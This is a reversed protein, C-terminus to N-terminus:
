RVDPVETLLSRLAEPRFPKPLVGAIALGRAAAERETAALMLPDAGSAIIIRARCGNEALAALVESGSMQPMQLDVAVHTPAWDALIRFFEAPQDTHQSAHGAATAIHRILMGIMPDDDLILLRVDTM